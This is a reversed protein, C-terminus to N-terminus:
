KRLGFVVLLLLLVGGGILGIMTWNTNGGAPVVAVPAAPAASRNRNLYSAGVNGAANILSSFWGTGTSTQTSASNLLSEDM